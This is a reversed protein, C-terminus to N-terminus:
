EGGSRELLKNIDEQIKDLKDDITKHKEDCLEKSPYHKAVHGYIRDFKTWALIVVGISIGSPIYQSLHEV